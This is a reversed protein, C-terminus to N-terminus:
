EPKMRNRIQQYVYGVYIGAPIALLLMKVLGLFDPLVYGLLLTLLVASVDAWRQRNRAEGHPLKRGEIELLVGGALGLALWLWLPTSRFSYFGVVAGFLLIYAEQRSFFTNKGSSFTKM